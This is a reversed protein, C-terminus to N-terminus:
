EAMSYQEALGDMAVQYRSFVRDFYTDKLCRRLMVPNYGAILAAADIVSFDEFLCWL